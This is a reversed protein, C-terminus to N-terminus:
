NKTYIIKIQPLPTDINYISSLLWTIVSNQLMIEHTYSTLQKVRQLKVNRM